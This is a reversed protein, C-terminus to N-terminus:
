RREYAYLAQRLASKLQEIRPVRGKTLVGIIGESSGLKDKGTYGAAKAAESLDLGNFVHQMIDAPVQFGWSLGSWSRNSAMMICGTVDIWGAHPVQIIGSETGIGCVDDHMAWAVTARNRAGRMIDALSLPQKSVGSEAGVGEIDIGQLCPFEPVLERVAAIKVPNLSGVIFKMAKVSASTAPETLPRAAVPPYVIFM